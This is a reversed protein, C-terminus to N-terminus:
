LFRRYDCNLVGALKKATEKGIPRKGHEMASINSRTIGTRKALDEQTLDERIRIGRLYIGAANTELEPTLELADITAPEDVISAGVGAAYKRLLDIAERSGVFQIKETRHKKTHELLVEVIEIEGGAGV